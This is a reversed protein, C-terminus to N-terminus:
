ALQPLRAARSQTILQQIGLSVALYLVLTANALGGGAGGTHDLLADLGFHVGIAVIWLAITLVGGQRYVVGGENTLRVTFARIYAFVGAAVLSGLLVGVGIGSITHDRLYNYVEYLGIIGLIIMLRPGRNGRIPRKQVQRTLVFVVVLVGVVISILSSSNM